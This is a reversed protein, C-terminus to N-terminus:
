EIHIGLDRIVPRWKESQEKLFDAAEQRTTIFPMIGMALMKEELGPTNAAVFRIADNLKDLIAPPTNPPAVLGFFTSITM